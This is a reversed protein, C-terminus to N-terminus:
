AIKIMVDDDQPAFILRDDDLKVQYAAYVGPPFHPERYNLAM